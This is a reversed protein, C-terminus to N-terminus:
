FGAISIWSSVPSLSELRSRRSRGDRRLRPFKEQLRGEITRIEAAAERMSVGPKLLGLPEIYHKARLNQEEPTLALPRWIQAAPPFSFDQDMVGVIDCTENNLTITKGLDESGIWLPEAM